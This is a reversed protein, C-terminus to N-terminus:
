CLKFNDITNRDFRSISKTIIRDIEDRMCDNIWWQFDERKNVQTGTIGEDASIEGKVWESKKSIWDRYYQVQSHYSNLQDENDTSVRCYAIVRLMKELKKM